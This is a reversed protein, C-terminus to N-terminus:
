KRYFSCAHHVDCFRCLFGPSPKFTGARVGADMAAYREGVQEVTVQSLDVRRSLGGKAALYWDGSQVTLGHLLRMAVAYTELQFRSKTSGTKLDRVRVLNAAEEILQDIYGRVQVGGIEVKFYLELAPKEEKGPVAWIAPQYEQAWRVYEATQQQGLVYRREIDDGGSGSASLWLDTNPEQGLARNVGVAYQDSFLTVAEEATMQRDSREFAEAASHFATGHFSWAAPLPTVREIRQLYYRHGCKEWQETQSVSRPQTEISTM